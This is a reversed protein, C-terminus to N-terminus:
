PATTFDWQDTTLSFTGEGVLAVPSSSVLMLFRYYDGIGTTGSETSDGSHGIAQWSFAASPPLAMGYSTLDPIRHTPAMTTVAVSPAASQWLYTIPGSSPNSVSFNTATTVGTAMDVPALLQTMAPVSLSTTDSTVGARWGFQGISVAAAFTYSADGIVPMLAEHTTSASNTMMVPLDLDPSVHVAGVTAVIPDPSDVVVSVTTTALAAGLDLNVVAPVTDTLTTTLSAYGAYGVPYGSGDRELQLAHIQVEASTNELWQVNISYSSETPLVTDCGLAFANIGDVCVMVTQNAPVPIVGGSLTGTLTASYPVLMPTGASIPSVVPEDTTLGEFVHVWDDAPSWVSLDYPVSLGTLAFSGDAATIETDGQSGVAVGVVPLDYVTTVRGTVSLSMVDLALEATDTLGTGTGTVSVDYSGEIAAATAALTLTSTLAGGSLTVDSFSASVNAPLGTVTLTVDASAGGLRTLTVEIQVDAGRLLEASASDLVITISPASGCAALALAM